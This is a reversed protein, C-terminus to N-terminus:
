VVYGLSMGGRTSYAYFISYYVINIKILNIMFHIYNRKVYIGRLDRWCKKGIVIQSNWRMGSGNMWLM